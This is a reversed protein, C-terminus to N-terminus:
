DCDLFGGKRKEVGVSAGSAISHPRPKNRAATPCFVVVMCMCGRIGFEHEDIRVM